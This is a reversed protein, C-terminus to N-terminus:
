RPGADATHRQSAYWEVTRHLGSALDTSASWGCLKRTATVDAKAETERERDALAGWRPSVDTGLLDCITEVVRRVSTLTGTGLDVTQGIAEPTTAVALIGEVVDDIFVWDCGRHGSSLKPALGALLSNITYPVLKSTDPQDPGYVIFPRAITIPAQYVCNFLQGYHRTAAKAAAYPSSPETGAAPEEASGMLVIRECGARTAAVLVNVTTILTNALTPLVMELNRSGTVEGALHFLVPAGAQAVIHEAFRADTLDGITWSIGDLSSPPARRSTSTVTVGAAVLRPVLARGIFGSAGTVLARGFGLDAAPRVSGM